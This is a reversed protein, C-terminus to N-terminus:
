LLWHVSALVPFPSLPILPQFKPWSDNPLIFCIRINTLVPWFCEQNCVCVLKDRELRCCMNHALVNDKSEVCCAAFRDSRRQSFCFVFLLHSGRGSLTRSNKNTLNPLACFFSVIGVSICWLDPEFPTYVPMNVRGSALLMFLLFPSTHLYAMTYCFTLFFFTIAEYYWRCIYLVCYDVFIM